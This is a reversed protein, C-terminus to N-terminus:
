RPAPAGRDEANALANTASASWTTPRTDPKAGGRQPTGSHTGRGAPRRGRGGEGGERPQAPHRERRRPTERQARARHAGRATPPEPTNGTTKTTKNTPCCREKTGAM